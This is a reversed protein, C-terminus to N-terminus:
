PQFLVGTTVPVAYDVDWGGNILVRGDLLRTATHDSRPTGMLGASTFTGTAPDFLETEALIRWGNGNRAYGGAVLVRGDPLLTATHSERRDTMPSTPSFTGSRPDYLEATRYITDNPGGAGGAVLVRGDALLTATHNGRVSAMSGTREFTGTSPDYLEAARSDPSSEGGSSGLILVRGDQLSTASHHMHSLQMSGTRSFRGTTPDYLEATDLIQAVDVTRVSALVV